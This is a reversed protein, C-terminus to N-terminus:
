RLAVWSFLLALALEVPGAQFVTTSVDTQIVVFAPSDLAHNRVLLQTYLTSCLEKSFVVWKAPASM